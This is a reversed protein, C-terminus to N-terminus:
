GNRAPTQRAGIRWFRPVRRLIETGQAGPCGNIELGPSVWISLRRRFRQKSLSQILISIEIRALKNDNSINTTILQSSMQRTPGIAM